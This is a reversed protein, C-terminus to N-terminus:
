KLFGILLLSIGRGLPWANSGKVVVATACSNTVAWGSSNKPDDIIPLGVGISVLALSISVVPLASLLNLFKAGNLCTFVSVRAPSVATFMSLSPIPLLSKYFRFRRWCLWVRLM